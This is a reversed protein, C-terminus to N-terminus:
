GECHWAEIAALYEPEIPRGVTAATCVFSYYTAAKVVHEISEVMGGVFWERMLGYSGIFIFRTCDDYCPFESSDPGYMTELHEYSLACEAQEFSKFYPSVGLNAFIVRALNPNRKFFRMLHATQDLRELAAQTLSEYDRLRRQEPGFYVLEQLCCDQALESLDQYHAYFSNKSVEAREVVERVTIQEYPKENLLELMAKRLYGRTREVRKDVM